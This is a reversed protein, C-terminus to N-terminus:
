TDQILNSIYTAVVANADKRSVFFFPALVDTSAAAVPFDSGVCSTASM